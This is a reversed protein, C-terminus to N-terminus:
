SHCQVSSNFGTSMNQDQKCGSLLLPLEAHYLKDYGGGGELFFVFNDRLRLYFHFKLKIGSVNKEYNQVTKLYNFPLSRIYWFEEAM